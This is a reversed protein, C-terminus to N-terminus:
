IAASLQFIWRNTKVDSDSNESEESIFDYNMQAKLKHKWFYYNLGLTAQKINDISSCSDGFNSSDCDLYAYRAAFEVKNEYIFYGSQVYFGVPDSDDNSEQDLSDIFFEGNLSFGRYKITGDISVTSLDLDDEALENSDNASSYAYAAGLALSLDETYGLDGEEYVDMKGLAQYNFSATLTHKTDKGSRNIGEEESIGNFIAAKVLLANDLFKYHGSLGQQRGLDFFNSTLSRDAFQLKTDDTNFQRSIATKFQGMTLASCDCPHWSIFADKLEPSKENEDSRDGVFDTELVYSFENYLANGSVILRANETSFDSTNKKASQDDFDSYQYREQLFTRVNLTIAEEPYTFTSGEYYYTTGPQESTENSTQSKSIVGKAILLEELTEASLSNTFAFFYLTLKIINNM